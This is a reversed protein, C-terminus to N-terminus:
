DDSAREKLNEFEISRSILDEWYKIVEDVEEAEFVNTSYYDAV